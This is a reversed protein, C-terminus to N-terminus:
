ALNLREVVAKALKVVNICGDICLYDPNSTEWVEAADAADSFQRSQGYISQVIADAVIRVKEGGNM